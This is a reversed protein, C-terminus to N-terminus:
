SKDHSLHEDVPTDDGLESDLNSGDYRPPTEKDQKLRKMKQKRIRMYCANCVSTGKIYRWQPTSKANCIACIYHNRNMKPRGANGLTTKKKLEHQLRVSLENYFSDAELQHSIPSQIVDHSMPQIMMPPPISSSALPEHAAHARGMWAKHSMREPSMSYCAVPALETPPHINAWNGPSRSPQPVPYPTMGHMYADQMSYNARYSAKREPIYGNYPRPTGQYYQHQPGYCFSVYPSMPKQYGEGTYCAPPHAPITPTGGYWYQYAVPDVTEDSAIRSQNSAGEGLTPTYCAGSSVSFPQDNVHHVDAVGISEDYYQQVYPVSETKSIASSDYVHEAKPLDDYYTDYSAFPPPSVSSAPSEAEIPIGDGCIYVRSISCSAAPLVNSDTAETEQYYSTDHNTVTLEKM